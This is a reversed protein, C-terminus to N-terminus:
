GAVPLYDADIGVHIITDVNAYVSADSSQKHKIVIQVRAGVLTELDFGEQAEAPTLVRGLIDAVVGTLAAKPTLIYSCSRFVRTPTGDEQCHGDLDFGFMAREGYEEHDKKVVGTVEAQYVGEPPLERKPRSIILAM